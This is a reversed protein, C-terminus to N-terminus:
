ERDAGTQESHNHDCCRDRPEQRQSSGTVSKWISRVGFIVAILICLGFFFEAFIVMFAEQFRFFGWAKAWPKLITSGDPISGSGEAQM